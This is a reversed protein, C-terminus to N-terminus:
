AEQWKKKTFFQYIYFIIVFCAVCFAIPHNQVITTFREMSSYEQLMSGMRSVQFIAGYIMTALTFLSMLFSAFGAIRQLLSPKGAEERAEERERRELEKDFGEGRELAERRAKDDIKLFDPQAKRKKQAANVPTLNSAARRWWVFISIALWVGATILTIRFMLEILPWAEPPIQNLTEQM